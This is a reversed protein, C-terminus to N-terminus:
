RPALASAMATLLGAPDHEDFFYRFRDRQADIGAIPTGDSSLFYTRPVYAGDIAYRAAVDPAEDVNVHVMIMNRARDVVRPDEFVHAYNRCHPCWDAFFVLCMPKHEARARASGTDFTQWAIQAANWDETSAAAAPLHAAVHSPEAAPQV